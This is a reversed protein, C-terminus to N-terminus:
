GSEVPGGVREVMLRSLEAVLADDARMSPIAVSVAAQIFDTPDPLAVAVASLGPESEQNNLAYGRARIRALEDDLDARRVITNPTSPPLEPDPYLADLEAAPLQALLVKGAATAHAPRSMGIRLGARLAKTSEIGDIYSVATRNLAVLHVTEDFREAIDRLLPRAHGAIEIHRLVGLGLELLRPGVVYDKTRADQRAYGHWIFMAALRHASSRTISLEDAVDALSVVSRTCLISLLRLARDVSEIPYNPKNIELM